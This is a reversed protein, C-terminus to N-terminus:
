QEYLPELSDLALQWPTSINSESHKIFKEKSLVRHTCDGAGAMMTWGLSGHGSCVMINNWNKSKAIVPLNSPTLPRLGAWYSAQAQQDLGPFTAHTARLLAACREPRLTKADYGSIEATGAARLTNGLRAWVIKFDDDSISAFPLNQNNNQHFDLNMAYGKTPYINTKINLPKLLQNTFSAASVIILDPQISQKWKNSNTQTVLVIQAQKNEAPVLTASTNFISKVAHKINLKQAYEPTSIAKFLQKCFLNIDGTFDDPTYIVGCLKHANKHLAPEQKVAQEISIPFRKLGIKQQQQTDNLASKFNDKNTYIHYIGKHQQLYNFDPLANYLEQEMQLHLHRSHLALQLMTKMHHLSKHKQTAFAFKLLWQLQFPDARPVLLLPADAVGLWKIAKQIAGPSSWPVTNCASIQAGNAFSTEMSVDPQREIITVQAGKKAFHYACSLGIAGAGIIVINKDTIDM